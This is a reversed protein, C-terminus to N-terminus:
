TNEVRLLLLMQKISVTFYLIRPYPSGWKIEIKLRFLISSLLVLCGNWLCLGLGWYHMSNAIDKITNYKCPNIKYNLFISDLATKLACPPENSLDACLSLMLIVVGQFAYFKSKSCLLINFTLTFLLVISIEPIHEFLVAHFVNVMFAFM